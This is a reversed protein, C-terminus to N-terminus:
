HYCYSPRDLRAKSARVDGPAGHRGGVRASGVVTIRTLADVSGASVAIRVM